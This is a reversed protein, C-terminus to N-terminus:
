QEWQQNEMDYIKIGKQRLWVEDHTIALLTYEKKGLFYTLTKEKLPGDLSATAEDLLIIKRKLLIAIVMAARQREGGSLKETEQELLSEAMNFLAFNKLISKKDPKGSHNCKFQFVEKITEYLTQQKFRIDQPIFAIQQRIKMVNKPTLQLDNCYIRGSDPLIFGQILNLLSSKGSGSPGKLIVKEGKKITLNFSDFIQKNGLTLGIDKLTIM